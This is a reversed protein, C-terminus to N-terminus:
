AFSVRTKADLAAGLAELRRLAVDNILDARGPAPSLVLAAGSWGIEFLALVAESRGSIDAGLRLAAGLAIATRRADDDLLLWYAEIEDPPPTKTYRHHVAAAIFAREHHTVGALPARLVLDFMLEARQDPHLPGGIDALRAAAARLLADRGHAFMPEANQFVPEVWLALAEGFARSRGSTAGFAEATALLPHEARAEPPMQAYLVGERLGYSSVVVRTFAGQVLLRELVAAAYPLGDARRGAAEELKDLSRKSQKRVFDCIKFAEALSMEYQQLVHLPHHRVVIDLRAIARWAGGVAYFTGGQGRLVRSRALAADITSLTRVDDYAERMLALPGLPFTEGKGPGEPAIEILELSSGGLDGVVGAAEPIGALVGLASLRAEESGPIIRLRLGTEAEVRRAFAKGDRAERVAATAVVDVRDLEICELITGFRRLAKLADEVGAPSLAGTKPLDRGLGAMVKENLIPMMARGDLQYVVLRVSNSGIDIVAAECAGGRRRAAPRAPVREVRARDSM